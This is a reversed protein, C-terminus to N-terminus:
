EAVGLLEAAEARLRILSKDTPANADMWNVAIEYSKRAEDRQGLQWHAMAL